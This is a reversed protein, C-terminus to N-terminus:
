STVTVNFGNNHFLTDHYQVRLLICDVVRLNLLSQTLNTASLVQIFYEFTTINNITTNNDPDQINALNRSEYSTLILTNLKYEELSTITFTEQIDFNCLSIEMSTMKRCNEFIGKITYPILNINNLHLHGICKALQSMNTLRLTTRNISGFGVNEILLGLNKPNIFNDLISPVLDGNQTMDDQSLYALCLFDYDPFILSQAAQVFKRVPRQSM